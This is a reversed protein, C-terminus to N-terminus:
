PQRGIFGLFRDQVSADDPVPVEPGFVGPGRIADGLPALRSHVLEVEDAPLEEFERLGTARAIDWSHVVLDACLFQDVTDAVTTPGFPGDYGITAKDHDDLAAQVGDRVAPWTRVPDDGETSPALDFRALFGSQSDVVHEVIQRACWGECPSPADWGDPPVADVVDSFRGSVRRYRDAIAEPTREM